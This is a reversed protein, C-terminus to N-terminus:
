IEYEDCLRGAFQPKCECQGTYQACNGTSRESNCECKICSDTANIPRDFPRYYGLACKECNVGETNHMCNKCVGGGEYKGHIDISLKEAEVHSDYECQSSHGYCQCPECQFENGDMSPRWRKQVFGPCCTQCQDGCTNHNCRCILKNPALPNSEDCIQAHGNCVCRGGISIDRISYFYRRTVTPDQKAVSM